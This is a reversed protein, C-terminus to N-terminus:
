LPKFHNSCMFLKFSLILPQPTAILVPYIECFKGAPIKCCCFFHRRQRFEPRGSLHCTTTYTAQTALRRLTRGSICRLGGEICRSLVSARNLLSLVETAVATITTLRRPSPMPTDALNFDYSLFYSEDVIQEPLAPFHYDHHNDYNQAANMPMCCTGIASTSTFLLRNASSGTPLTRM